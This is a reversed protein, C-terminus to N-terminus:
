FGWALEEEQTESSSVRSGKGQAPNKPVCNQSLLLSGPPRVESRVWEAAHNDGPLIFFYSRATPAESLKGVNRCTQVQVLHREFGRGRLDAWEEVYPSLPLISPVLKVPAPQPSVYGFDWWKPSLSLLLEILELEASSTEFSLLHTAYQYVAQRAYVLGSNGGLGSFFPPLSTPLISNFVSSYLPILGWSPTKQCWM